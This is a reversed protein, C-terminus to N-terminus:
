DRSDNPDCLSSDTPWPVIGVVAYGRAGYAVRVAIAEGTEPAHVQSGKLVQRHIYVDGPMGFVSVFGYGKTDDFWKVRAPRPTIHMIDERIGMSAAFRHLVSVDPEPPTVEILERVRWRGDVLGVSVKVSANEEITDIGFDRLANIHLM